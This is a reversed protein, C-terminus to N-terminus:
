LAAAIEISFAGGGCVTVTYLTKALPPGDVVPPTLVGESLPLLMFLWQPVRVFVHTHTHDNWEM